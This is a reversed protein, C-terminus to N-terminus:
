PLTPGLETTGQCRHQHDHSRGQHPMTFDRLAPAPPVDDSTSRCPAVTGVLVRESDAFPLEAPWCVQRSISPWALSCAARKPRPNVKRRPIILGTPLTDTRSVPPRSWDRAGSFDVTGGRFSADRFGVEGNSFTAGYFNVTGSLFSAHGFNVMSGSFRADHFNVVGGSFEAYSFDSRRRRFVPRPRLQTQRGPFYAVTFHVTSGSFETAASFDIEAAPSSPVTSASGHRWLVRRASTSRAAPSSPARFNVTRRWLVRRPLLRGEGGSFGAGASTSRAALSSPAASASRAAPSGPTTSASRAALSRPASSASWAALSNPAASASRAAPSSQTAFLVAGGSFEATPEFSVTGGSFEADTFSVRGAPSGPAASTSRAAPFGPTTSTSRRRRLVRRPSLQGNRRLVGRGPSSVTGGSFVAGRFSVTGGSFRADYFNGGDFVVGTFDFDLGQWSVAAGDQLHAAILGSSLTASRGTPRYALGNRDPADKGPDPEYPMRLYGCLVDVCAQRNAEWDDALGQWPTCGPWGSLRPKDSGLQEAATAFRENLTRDRQQALTKDLQEGQKAANRDLQERQEALTRDTLTKETDRRTRPPWCNQAALTGVLTLVGVGGPIIAAEADPSM